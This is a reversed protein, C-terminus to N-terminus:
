EKPQHAGSSTLWELNFQVFTIKEYPHIDGTEYLLGITGDPLVSLSSYAGPGDNVRRSMRWTQGEDYSLKVTLKTRDSWPGPNPPNSFLLLNKGGNSETSYRLISAQCGPEPLGEDDYEKYWTDGGNHSLAVYRRWKGRNSRMNLMLTGDALEVAQSEDTKGTVYSGARWTQGHDDSYIVRSSGKGSNNPGYGPIVLRGSKLQIGVGPGAVFAGVSLTIDVPRSWTVGDDTSKLVLVRGRWVDKLHQELGGSVEYCVIWITGNNLDIVPSNQMIAKGKGPLVVQMREWNVGNGFVREYGNLKRAKSPRGDYLSRKLVLDTPDGDDGERAECFALITGKPSVIMAPIRYINIGDVGSTFIDQRRFLPEARILSTLSIFLVLLHALRM